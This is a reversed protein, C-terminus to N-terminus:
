RSSFEFIQLVLPKSVFCAHCLSFARDSRSIIYVVACKVIGTHLRVGHSLGKFYWVLSKINPVEIPENGANRDRELKRISHKM